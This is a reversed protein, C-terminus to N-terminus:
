AVLEGVSKFATRIDPRGKKRSRTHYHLFCRVDRDMRTLSGIRVMVQPVVMASPPAMKRHVQRIKRRFAVLHIKSRVIHLDCM